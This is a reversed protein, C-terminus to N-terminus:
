YSYEASSLCPDLPSNQLKKCAYSCMRMCTTPLFQLQLVTGKVASYSPKPPFGGFCLGTSSNIQMRRVKEALADLMWDEVAEGQPINAQM